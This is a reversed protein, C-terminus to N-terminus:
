TPSSRTRAWPTSWCRRCATATWTPSIGAISPDNAAAGFHQLRWADVPRDAVTVTASTTAGLTYSADAALTLVAAENGEALADALPTVLVTASAAGIPITVSDEIREYDTGNIAEGSMAMRVLLPADKGGTRTVTFAGTTLGLETASSDSAIVTVSPLAATITMNDFTKVEGDDATLRLVYIGPASFTVNSNELTADGFTATGPGSVKTWLVTTEGPPAPKADDNVTGNLSAPAPLTVSISSGADVEPGVNERVSTVTVNDFIATASANATGGTVALGVLGNPNAGYAITSVVTWAQGDASKSATLSGGAFQLRLWYPFTTGTTNTSAASDGNNLRYRLAGSNGSSLAGYLFMFGMKSSASTSGRLMLGAKANSSNTMSVVRARIEGEGNLPQSVFYFGDSTGTVNPGGGSVTFTGANQTYSGAPVGAINTGTWSPAATGVTVTVDRTTQLLGDSATLRLVYTGMGTFTATSTPSSASGFSVIGPGSVKTWTTTLAAPAPKGDDLVTAELALGVGFPIAVDSVGPRTLTIQPATNLDDDAITVTGSGPSGISYTSSGTITM